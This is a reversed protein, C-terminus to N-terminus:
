IDNLTGGAVAAGVISAPIVRGPDSAAFPIAGETIFTAGMVYCTKGTEREEKTFDIKLYQLLL